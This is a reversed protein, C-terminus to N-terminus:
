FFFILVVQFLGKWIRQIEYMQLMARNFSIATYLLSANPWCNEGPLSHTSAKTVPM